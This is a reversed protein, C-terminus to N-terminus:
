MLLQKAFIFIDDFLYLSKVERFCLLGSMSSLWSNNFVFQLFFLDIPQNICLFGSLGVKDICRFAFCSVSALTETHGNCINMWINVLM